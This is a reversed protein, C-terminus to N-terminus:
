MPVRAFVKVTVLSNSEGLVNRFPRKVRWSLDPAFKM